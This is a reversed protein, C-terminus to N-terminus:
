PPLLLLCRAAYRKRRTPRRSSTTAESSNQRPRSTMAQWSSFGAFMPTDVRRWQPEYSLSPNVCVKCDQDKKYLFAETPSCGQGTILKDLAGVLTEAVLQPTTFAHLAPMVVDGYTKISDDIAMRLRGLM